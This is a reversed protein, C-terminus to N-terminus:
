GTTMPMLVGISDPGEQAPSVLIPASVGKEPLLQGGKGEPIQIRMHVVEESGLGQALRLLLKPNLAVRLWGSTHKPIVKDYRPFDGTVPRDMRLTDGKSTVASAKGNRAEVVIEDRGRRAKAQKLLDTPLPGEIDYDASTVPVVVLVKGDTAVLAPGDDVVSCKKEFRVANLVYRGEDKAACVHPKCAKPYQM